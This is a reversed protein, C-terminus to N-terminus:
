PKYTATWTGACTGIHNTGAAGTENLAWTGGLCTGTCPSTNTSFGNMPGVFTGGAPFPDIAYSGNQLDGKFAGTSCSLSGSIQAHFHIAILALGDLTGGSVELFEGNQSETLTFDIPGTIPLGGASGDPTGAPHYTCEFTGVYHGAQCPKPQGPVTEPWDFTTDYYTGGQGTPNSFAGASGGSDNPANGTGPAGGAGPADGTGTPTGGAAATSLGGAGPNWAGGFAGGSGAATAGPDTSTTSSCALVTGVGCAVALAFRSGRVLSRLASTSISSM